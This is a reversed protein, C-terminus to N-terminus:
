RLAYGSERPLKGEVKLVKAQGVSDADVLALAGPSSSVLALAQETSGASKPAASAEDRFIKAIWYKKYQGENMEYVKRLLVDRIPSGAVPAVLVVPRDNSWFRREGQYLRRLDKLSIDKMPNKSNVVVAVDPKRPAPSDGAARGAGPLVLLVGTAFILGLKRM